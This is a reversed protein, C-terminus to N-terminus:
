ANNSRCPSPRGNFLYAAGSQNFYQNDFPNGVIVDNGIAAISRQYVGLTYSDAPLPNVFTQLLIGNVDFLYTAGANAGGTDDGEAHILIKDGMAAICRGFYDNKAPTPNNFKQLLNGNM